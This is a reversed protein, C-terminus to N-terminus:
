HLKRMITMCICSASISVPTEVTITVPSVPICSSAIRSVAGVNVFTCVHDIHMIAILISKTKVLNRAPVTGTFSTIGSVSRVTETGIIILTSKNWSNTVFICSARIVWSAIRASAVFSKLSIAESALIDIFASGNVRDMKMITVVIGSASVSISREVARAIDTKVAVTNSTKIDVLAVGRNQEVIVVAIDVSSACIVDSAVLAVAVNAPSFVTHVAVTVVNVLANLVHRTTRLSVASIVRAREGAFAPNSELVHAVPKNALIDVLAISVGVITRSM